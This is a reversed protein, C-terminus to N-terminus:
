RNIEKALKSVLKELEALRQKLHGNELDRRNLEDTLKRNLGQIAALAVGDADVTAIATEQAGLGFAAHFDQAMPGVHKVGAEETKFRWQGIPLAAVRELIESSDVAQIDTKANRDSNPTITGTAFINGVVHLKEGPTATGIGVNGGFDQLVIKGSDRASRIYWDGNTGYHIHSVNPGINPAAFTATNDITTSRPSQVHLTAVPARNIGVGNRARICFQNISSSAFDANESDAWVFTGEHLARARFSGAFSFDGQALNNEGGPVTAAFGSSVNDVGGGIAGFPNTVIQNNEGGVIAARWSSDGIVNFVGGGVVSHHSNTGIENSSGGAIVTFSSRLGIKNGDGGGVTAYDSNAGIENGAGGAITGSESNDAVANDLGGGITTYNASAGIRNTRGGGIVSYIANNGIRNLNGGSITSRRANVLIQNTEGGSITSGSAGIQITNQLGGAMTGFLAQNTNERGGGIMALIGSVNNLEGGAITGWSGRIVNLSGGGITAVGGGTEITNLEGGGIFALNGANTNAFGGTISSAIGTLINISGINLRDGVLDGGATVTGSFIPSSTLLAVNTSLRSDLLTGALDTAMIAYPTPSLPQRPSLVAGNVTIELWRAEGSFAGSGFDLRVTFLGNSVSLPDVDITPGIPMGDALADYLEFQFTYSGNAPNTGDTLHGQYTFASGLPAASVTSVLVLLSFSLTIKQINM